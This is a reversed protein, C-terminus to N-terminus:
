GGIGSVGVDDLASLGADSERLKSVRQELTKLSKEVQNLVSASPPYARFFLLTEHFRIIEDPDDIECGHLGRLKQVLQGPAFGFHRKLEELEALLRLCEQNRM